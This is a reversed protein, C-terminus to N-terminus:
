AQNWLKMAETRSSAEPGRAGCANCEVHYCEDVVGDNVVGVDANKCFPCAMAQNTVTIDREDTSVLLEYLDRRVILDEDRDFRVEIRGTSKDTVVRLPITKETGEDATTGSSNILLIDGEQAGLENLVKELITM